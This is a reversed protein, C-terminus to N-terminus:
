ASLKFFLTAAFAAALAYSAVIPAFKAFMTDGNRLSTILQGLQLAM